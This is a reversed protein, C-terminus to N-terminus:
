SWYHILSLRGGAAVARPFSCKRPTVVFPPPVKEASPSVNRASDRAFARFCGASPRATGVL